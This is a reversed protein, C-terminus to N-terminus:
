RATRSRSRRSHRAPQSVRKPRATPSQSSSPAVRTHLNRGAACARPMQRSQRRAVETRARERHPYRSRARSGRRYNLFRVGSIREGTHSSRGDPLRMRGRAALDFSERDTRKWCGPDSRLWKYLHSRVHTPLSYRFAAIACFRLATAALSDECAFPQVRAVPARTHDIREAPHFDRARITPLVREAPTM